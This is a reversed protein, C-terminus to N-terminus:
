RAVRMLVVVRKQVSKGAEVRGNVDKEAKLDGDEVWRRRRNSNMVDGDVAVVGRSVSFCDGRLWKIKNWKGSKQLNRCSREECFRALVRRLTTNQSRTVGARMAFSHKDCQRDRVKV